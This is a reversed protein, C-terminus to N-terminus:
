SLVPFRARKSDTLADFPMAFRVGNLVAFLDFVEEAVVGAVPPLYGFAAAIIGPVSLAMGSVASEPV